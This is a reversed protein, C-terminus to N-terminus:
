FEGKFQEIFYSAYEEGVIKDIAKIKDLATDIDFTQNDKIAIAENHLAYALHAAIRISTDGKNNQGLYPALLIRLEYLASAILKVQESNQEMNEGM